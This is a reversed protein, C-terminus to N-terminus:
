KIMEDLDSPHIRADDAFWRGDGSGTDAYWDTGDGPVTRDLRVFDGDRLRFVQGPRLEDRREYWDTM